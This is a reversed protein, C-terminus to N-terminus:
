KPILKDQAAAATEKFALVLEGFRLTLEQPGLIEQLRRTVEPGIAELSSKLAPLYTWFPLLFFYLFDGNYVLLSIWPIWFKEIKIPEPNRM